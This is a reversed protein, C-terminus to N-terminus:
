RVYGDATAVEVANKAEADSDGGVTVTQATDKDAGKGETATTHTLMHKALNSERMYSMACGPWNCVYPKTSVNTVQATLKTDRNPKHTLIHKDLNRQRVYSMGCGPWDCVLPKDSVSALTAKHHKGVKSPLY